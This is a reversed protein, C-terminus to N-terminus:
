QNSSRDIAMKTRPLTSFSLPSFRTAQMPLIKRLAGGATVHWAESVETVNGVREGVLAGEDQTAAQIVLETRESSIGLAPHKDTGYFM